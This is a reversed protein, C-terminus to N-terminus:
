CVTLYVSQQFELLLPYPIKLKMCDSMEAQNSILDILSPISFHIFETESM